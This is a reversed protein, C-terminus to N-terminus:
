TCPNDFPDTLGSTRGPASFQYPPAARAASLAPAAERESSRDGQPSRGSGADVGDVHDATRRMYEVDLLVPLNTDWGLGHRKLVGILAPGDHLPSRRHRRRRTPRHSRSSRMRRASSGCGDLVRTGAPPTNEAGGPQQGAVGFCRPVALMGRFGTARRSGLAGTARGVARRAPSHPTRRARVRAGRRSRRGTARSSCPSVPDCLPWRAAHRSTADLDFALATPQLRAHHKSVDGKSVMLDNGQVRGVNIENKDFADRREAGGKEHVIVTFM